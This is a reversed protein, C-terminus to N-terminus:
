SEQSIGHERAVSQQQEVVPAKGRDGGSRDLLGRMRGLTVAITVGAKVVTHQLDEGVYRSPRLLTYGTRALQGTTSIGHLQWYYPRQTEQRYRKMWFDRLSDAYTHEVVLDPDYYIDYAERVREALEKEEHGWVFNEDFLGVADFVERRLAMNCSIFTDVHRPTAGRDYHDTYSRGFVDDHPHIIRGAVVAEEELVRAAETLYGKAPRSDDDLFVLKDASARKIGENRAKAAGEDRRVIVEYDAFDGQDLYTLCEIDSRDKLTPIIVSLEVM